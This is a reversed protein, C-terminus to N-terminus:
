FFIMNTICATHDAKKLFLCNCLYIVEWKTNFCCWSCVTPSYKRDATNVPALHLKMAQGHEM